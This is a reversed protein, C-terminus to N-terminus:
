RTVIFLRWEVAVLGVSFNGNWERVLWLGFRGPNAM